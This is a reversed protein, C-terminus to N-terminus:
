IVCNASSKAQNIGGHVSIQKKIQFPRIKANAVMKMEVLDLNPMLMRM